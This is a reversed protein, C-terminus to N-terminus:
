SSRGVLPVVYLQLAFYALLGGAIGAISWPVPLKVAALIGFAVPIAAAVAGWPVGVNKGCSACAVSAEPGLMCKRWISM